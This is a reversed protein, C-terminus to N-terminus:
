VIVALYCLLAPVVLLLSDIRDLMGGHGPILHGSDKVGAARKLMSEVLDGWTSFATVVLGMGIAGALSLGCLWDNLLFYIVLAGGVTFVLGGFFGEWSKKPSLREFLKHRGFMSGAVYAGTDNLWIMIFMALILQPSYIYYMYTMLALPLSVYVQAALPIALAHIPNAQKVYLQAVMRVVLYLLVPAFVATVPMPSFSVLSSAALANFVVVAAAGVMDLVRLIRSDADAADGTTMKSFEYVGAIAFLAMLSLFYIDGFVLSAVIAAIYVIGALTRTLLNKM